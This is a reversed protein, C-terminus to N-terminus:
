EAHGRDRSNPVFLRFALPGIGREVPVERMGRERAYDVMASEVPESRDVLIAAPPNADLFAPLEAPSTTRYYAREEATMYPAVRYVFQGAAFEPYVQRGGEIALLPSMTAVRGDDPVGADDLVGTMVRSSALGTWKGPEALSVLGPVLRLSGALLGMVLLAMLAADGGAQREGAPPCLALFALILFPIPPVFYQSFSPTPVFSVMASGAALALALLFPWRYVNDRVDIWRGRVFHRAAFFVIGATALLTTGGLWVQEALLLKGAIGMAKPEASDHWYSTHLGTFYEITHSVMGAPDALFYIIPPLGGIAGGLCLPFCQLRLREALSRDAPALISALLFCPAMVIFNAKFGIALSVCVGALIAQFMRRRDPRSHDLAGLLFYFALFAFPVPIFSNTALVGPPGLLAINCALLVTATLAALTSVGLRGAIRWLMFFALAWASIVVMRAILLAHDTGTVEYIASLLLALNPLHNYGLDRYLDGEPLMRAVTVFLHEDRNIPYALVRGAICALLAVLITAPLWRTSIARSPSNKGVSDM